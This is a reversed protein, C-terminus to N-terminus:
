GLRAMLAGVEDALRKAKATPLKGNVAAEACASLHERVMDGQVRRLAAIVASIQHTIEICERENEIMQQLGRVQGEIRKLRPLQKTHNASVDKRGTKPHNRL